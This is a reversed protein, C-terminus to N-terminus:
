PADDDQDMIMRYLDTGSKADMLKKRFAKDKLMRSIKALAKLHKGASTEPALLLFFLHAPRNDLAEFDIGKKSRGFTIVMGDLGKIKGHPIAIGDGIGTSGLKERDLLVKVIAQPDGGLEKKGIRAALEVLADHKCDAKLDEIVCEPKLIEGIKM